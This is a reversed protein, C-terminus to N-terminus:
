SVFKIYTCRWLCISFIILVHFIFNLHIIKIALNLWFKKVQAHTKMALSYMKAREVANVAEMEHRPIPVLELDVRPEGPVLSVANKGTKGILGIAM